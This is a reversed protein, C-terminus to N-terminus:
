SHANQRLREALFKLPNFPEHQEVEFEDEEESSEYEEESSSVQEGAQIKQQREERKQKQYEIEKSVKWRELEGSNQIHILLDSLAPGLDPYVSETMYSTVTPSKFGKGFIADM